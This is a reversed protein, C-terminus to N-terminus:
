QRTGNSIQDASRHIGHQGILRPSFGLRFSALRLVFRNTRMVECDSRSGVSAFLGTPTRSGRRSGNTCVAAFAQVSRVRHQQSARIHIAIIFLTVVFRRLVTAVIFQQHQGSPVNLAWLRERVLELM